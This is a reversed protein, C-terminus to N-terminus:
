QRDKNETMIQPMLLNIKENAKLKEKKIQKVDKKSLKEKHALAEEKTM